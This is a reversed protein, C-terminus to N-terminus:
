LEDRWPALLITSTSLIFVSHCQPCESQREGTPYPVWVGPCCEIDVGPPPGDPYAPDLHFEPPGSPGATQDTM